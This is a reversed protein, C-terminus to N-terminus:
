SNIAEIYEELKLILNSSIESDFKRAFLHKSKVIAKFDSEDLIAPSNGNKYEWDIHRLNSNVIRNKFKSNLLITQFFMEEACFTHQFRKLFSRNKGIYNLIYAISNRSLSWWTSGWYLPPFKKSYPIVISFLRQSKVILTYIKREWFSGKENLLDNPRYYHVRSMGGDFLKNTPMKYYEIYESNNNIEFFSCIEEISKIPYCQGSLCHFYSIEPISYCEKILELIAELHSFGGWNVCISNELISVNYKAKLNVITKHNSLDSKKDIHIYFYSYECDLSEILKELQTPDKYATILFGHKHM